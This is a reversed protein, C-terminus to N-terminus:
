GLLYMPIGLLVALITYGTAEYRRIVSEPQYVLQLFWRCVIEAIDMYNRAATVFIYAPFGVILLIVISSEYSMNPFFQNAVLLLVGSSGSVLPQISSVFDQLYPIIFGITPTFVGSIVSLGLILTMVSWILTGMVLSTFFFVGKEIPIHLDYESIPPQRDAGEFYEELASYVRDSFAAGHREEPFRSRELTRIEDLTRTYIQHILVFLISLSLAYFLYFIPSPEPETSARQAEILLSLAPLAPFYKVVAERFERSVERVFGQIISKVPAM